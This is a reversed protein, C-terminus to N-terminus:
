KDNDKGSRAVVNITAIAVFGVILLVAWRQNKQLKEISEKNGCAIDCQAPKMEIARLRSFIENNAKEQTSEIRVLSEKVGDMLATLKAQNEGLHCLNRHFSEIIKQENNM